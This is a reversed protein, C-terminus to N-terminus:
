IRRIKSPIVWKLHSSDQIYPSAKDHIWKLVISSMKFEVRCKLPVKYEVM